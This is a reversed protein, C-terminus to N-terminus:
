ELGYKLSQNLVRTDHRQLRAKGGRGSDLEGSPHVWPTSTSWLGCDGTKLDGWSIATWVAADM